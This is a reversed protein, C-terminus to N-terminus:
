YVQADTPETCHARIAGTAADIVALDITDRHPDGAIVYEYQEAVM